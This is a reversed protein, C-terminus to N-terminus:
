GLPRARARAGLPEGSFTGSCSLKPLYLLQLLVSFLLHLLGAPCEGPAEWSHPLLCCPPYFGGTSSLWLVSIIGSSWHNPFRLLLWPEVNVLATSGSSPCLHSSSTDLSPVLWIAAAPLLHSISFLTGHSCLPADWLGLLWSAAVPITLFRGLVPSAAAGLTPEQWCSWAGAAGGAGAAARSQQTWRSSAPQGQFAEKRQFIIHKVIFIQSSNAKDGLFEAM